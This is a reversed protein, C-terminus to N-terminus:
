GLSVYALGQIIKSIVRLKAIIKLARPDEIYTAQNALIRLQVCAFNTDTDLYHAHIRSALM